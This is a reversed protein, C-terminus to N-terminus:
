VKDFIGKMVYQENIINEDKERVKNKFDNGLVWLGKDIERLSLKLLNRLYDCFYTYQSYHSWFAPKTNIYVNKSTLEIYVKWVKGNMIPFLEPKFLHIFFSPLVISNKTISNAYKVLNNYPLHNNKFSLGAWLNIESQANIIANDNNPTTKHIYFKKDNVYVREMYIDPKETTVKGLFWLFLYKVANKLQEDPEISKRIKELYYIYFEESYKIYDYRKLAEIIDNKTLM